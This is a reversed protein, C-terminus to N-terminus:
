WKPKQSEILREIHMMRQNLIDLSTRLQDIKVSILELDKSGGSPMSPQQPARQMPVEELKPAAFTASPGVPMAGPMQGPSGPMQGPGGPAPGGPPMAGPEAGPMGQQGPLGLDTEKPLALEPGGMEGAGFDKGFDGMSPMAPEKKWFMLKSMLGM